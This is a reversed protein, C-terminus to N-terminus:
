DHQVARLKDKWKDRDAKAERCTGAPCLLSRRFTRFRFVSRLLRQIRPPLVRDNVLNVRAAELIRVAVADAVDVPNGGPQIVKAVQADIGDPNAWTGM